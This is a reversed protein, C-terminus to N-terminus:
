QDGKGEGKAKGKEKGKGKSKKAKSLKATQKEIMSKLEVDEVFLDWAGWGDGYQIVLEDNEITTRGVIDPGCLVTKSPFDVWLCDRPYGWSHLLYKIGFLISREVREETPEDPKSWIVSDECKFDDKIKNISELIIDRNIPSSFTVWLMGVFKKGKWFINFEKSSSVKELEVRLWKEAAPGDAGKFNGFVGNCTRDSGSVISLKEAQLAAVQKQLDVFRGQVGEPITGSSLALEVAEIRSMMRDIDTKVKIEMNKIDNKIKHEFTSFSTSLTKLQEELKVVCKTIPEMIISLDKKTSMVAMM